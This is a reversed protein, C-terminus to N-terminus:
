RGGVEQRQGLKREQGRLLRRINDRHQFAMLLFLAAGLLAAPRDGNLLLVLGPFSATALLSGLSVYRTWAIVGIFVMLSLACPLPALVAYSGVATSVGKGGKFRLFVPFCHGFVVLFSTALAVRRDDFLGLALWVPVVAKLVDLLAVPLGYRWGKLRLVNTAGTSRSGFQRIDKKESWRFVLFGFPISGLLYALSLYLIKM